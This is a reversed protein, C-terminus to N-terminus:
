NDGQRTNDTEKEFGLEVSQGSFYALTGLKGLLVIDFKFGKQQWIKKKLSHNSKIEWNENM